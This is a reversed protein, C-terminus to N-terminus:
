GECSECEESRNGADSEIGAESRCYYLTKIGLKWAEIHVDSFYKPDVGKPFFLNLSQAQCIWRQRQAAQQILAMQDIEYATKFVKKENEDLFDLHQVSGKNKMISKWVQKNDKNKAKLLEELVRNKVEYEGKAGSDTYYNAYIPEIGYSDVCSITCNSRTPAVALLHTNYMGTGKCWEPEGFTEALERSALVSMEKIHRFVDANLKMSEFSAWPLGKTQLLSHWGLVGLGVARGKTASRVVRHFGVLEMGKYIFENLIGNLFYISTKVANRKVIEDWKLLNLSSLCCIFSHNEDTHLTIETCINTMSVDLNNKKYAEPNAKNINDHYAIYSEGLEMRTKMLEVWKARKEHDGDLMEEMWKDKIFTCHHLNGCQRNVDGEPRRMRIFEHWDGHEIDLNMSGAGRRTSGQSMANITSDYMKMFGIVGDSSGNNGNQIPAGRPRVRSFGVGVGGGHKSLMSMEQIKGSIDFVSDAVDIGYCSIPLGRNTGANSLVPSSPCLINDWMLDFFEDSMGPIKLHHAASDAIRRYMDRPTEGKLMYGKRLKDYSQVEMWDPALNKSKLEDLTLEVDKFSM